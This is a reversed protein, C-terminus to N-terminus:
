KQKTQGKKKGNNGNNGGAGGGGGPSPSPISMSVIGDFNKTGTKCNPIDFFADDIDDIDCKALDEFAISETCGDNNGDNYYVTQGLVVTARDLGDDVLCDTNDSYWVMGSDMIVNITTNKDNCIKAMMEGFSLEGVLDDRNADVNYPNSSMEYERDDNSNKGGFVHDEGGSLVYAALYYGQGATDISGNDADTTNTVCVLDSTGCAANAPRGHWIYLKSLQYLTLCLNNSDTRTLIDTVDYGYPLSWTDKSVSSINLDIFPLDCPPEACPSCNNGPNNGVRDGSGDGDIDPCPLRGHSFAYSILSNKIIQINAKEKAMKSTKMTSRMLGVGATMLLGMVVLVISLEILSFGKQCLVTKKPSM